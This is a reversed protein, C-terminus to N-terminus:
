KLGMKQQYIQREVMVAGDSDGVVYYERTIVGCEADIACVSATGGAAPIMRPTTARAMIPLREAQLAAVQAVFGLVIVARAGGARASAAEQRGFVACNGHHMGDILVVHNKADRLLLENLHERGGEALIPLALGEFNHISNYHGVSSLFRAHFGFKECIAYTKPQSM